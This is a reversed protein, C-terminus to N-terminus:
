AAMEQRLTEISRVAAEMGSRTASAADLHLLLASLQEANREKKKYARALRDRRAIEEAGQRRRLVAAQNNRKPRKKGLM